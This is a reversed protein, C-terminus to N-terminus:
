LYGLQFDPETDEVFGAHSILYQYVNVIVQFCLSLLMGRTERIPNQYSILIRM